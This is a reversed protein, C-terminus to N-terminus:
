IFTLNIKGDALDITARWHGDKENLIMAIDM